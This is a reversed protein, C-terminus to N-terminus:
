NNQQYTKSKVSIDNKQWASVTHLLLNIIYLLTIWWIKRESHDIALRLLQIQHMAVLKMIIGITRLELIM